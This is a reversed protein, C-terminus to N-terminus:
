NHIVDDSEKGSEYDADEDESGDDGDDEESEEESLEEPDAYFSDLDAPETRSSPRTEAKEPVLASPVVVAVDSESDRLSGEVGKELWDPLLDDMQMSKGTVRGLSGVLGREGDTDGDIVHHSYIYGISM